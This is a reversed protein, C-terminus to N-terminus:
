RWYCGLIVGVSCVYADLTCGAPKCAPQNCQNQPAPPACSLATGCETYDDACDLTAANVARGEAVMGIAATAVVALLRRVSRDM